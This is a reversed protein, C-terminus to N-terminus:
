KRSSGPDSQSPDALRRTVKGLARDFDGASFDPAQKKRIDAPEKRPKGTTNKPIPKKKQKKQQM